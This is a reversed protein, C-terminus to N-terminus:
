QNQAVGGSPIRLYTISSVRAFNRQKAVQELDRFSVAQHERHQLEANAQKLELFRQETQAVSYALATLSNVQFIYLGVLLASFLLGATFTIKKRM